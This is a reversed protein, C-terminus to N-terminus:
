RREKPCKDLEKVPKMKLECLVKSVQTERVAERCLKRKVPCYFCRLM